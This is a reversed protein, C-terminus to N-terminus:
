RAQFRRRIYWGIAGLVLLGVGGGLFIILFLVLGYGSPALGSFAAIVIGLILWLILWLIPLIIIM